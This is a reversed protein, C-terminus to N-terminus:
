AGPQSVLVQDYGLASVEAVAEAADFSAVPPVVLSKPDALRVLAGSSAVFVDTKINTGNLSELLRGAREAYTANSLSDGDIVLATRHSKGVNDIITM